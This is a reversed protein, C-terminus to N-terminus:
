KGVEKEIQEWLTKIQYRKSAPLDSRKDSIRGYESKLWDVAIEGQLCDKYLNDGLIALVFAEVAQNMTMKEESM